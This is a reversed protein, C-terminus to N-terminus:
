ATWDESRRWLEAALREDQALASPRKPRCTDYYLSTENGVESSTACYLTTKAGEESSIMFLKILWRAPAPIRRWIDSAVVGPHLSYTTVNSGALRRGLEASFLVNALKSTDYEPMGTASRTTKRVAEFDIGRSRYHARSAVTVIRARDSQRIRDLLLNTFLFHGIHNVGFTLEFGSASLGRHGGLGANNVLLPLPLDRRLFQEAAGRVSALDGLDLELFEAKARPAESAITDLVPRTKESSRCALFVHFGRKALEIATVRGIGANAGTVIAVQGGRAPPHLESM